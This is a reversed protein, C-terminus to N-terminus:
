SHLCSSNWFSAHKSLSAIIAQLPFFHLFKMQFWPHLVTAWPPPFDSEKNIYGWLHPSKLGRCIIYCYRNSTFIVSSEWLPNLLGTKYYGCLGTLWIWTENVFLRGLHAKISMPTICFPPLHYMFTMPKCQLCLLPSCLPKHWQMSCTQGYFHM